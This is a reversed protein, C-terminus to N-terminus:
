NHSRAIVAGWIERAGSAKLVKACENLTSTTTAVDDILIVNQQSLVLGSEKIKFANNLNRLRDTKELGAQPTTYVSRVLIDCRVSYDLEQAMSRAIIESQNFGRENKRKYHLPVPMIIPRESLHPKLGRIKQALLQGLRVGVESVYKYKLTKVSDQVTQQDYNALVILGALSTKTRCAPCTQFGSNSIRCYPCESDPPNALVNKVCQHCLWTDYTKCGGLCQVPFFCDLLNRILRKLLLM